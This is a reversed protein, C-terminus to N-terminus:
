NTTPNLSGTSINMLTAYHAGRKPGSFFNTWTWLTCRYVFDYDFTYLCEILLMLIRNKEIALINHLPYLIYYLILLYINLNQVKSFASAISLKLHFFVSVYFLSCNDSIIVNNFIALSAVLLLSYQKLMGPTCWIPRLM